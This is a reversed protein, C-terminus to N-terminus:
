IVMWVTLVGNCIPEKPLFTTTRPCSLVPVKLFQDRGLVDINNSYRSAQLSSTDRHIQLCMQETLILVGPWNSPHPAPRRRQQRFVSEQVCHTGWAQPRLTIAPYSWSSQNPYYHFLEENQHLSTWSTKPCYLEILLLGQINGRVALLLRFDLVFVETKRSKDTSVRNNPFNLFFNNRIFFSSLIQQMESIM